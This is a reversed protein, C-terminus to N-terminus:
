QGDIGVERLRTGLRQYLGEVWPPMGTGSRPRASPALVVEVNGIGVRAALVFLEEIAPDGIALCGVSCDKGHIMIDGGLRTRGEEAAHRRDEANPYDVRLALHYLSNPNLSEIGYFGEPVQGDGERLKPGLGGSAGLVSYRAVEKWGGAALAYVRLEREAKLAVLAIRAPPYAVGAAGFREKLRLEAAPGYERVRDEISSRGLVLNRLGAAVRAPGVLVTAGGMAAAVLVWYRAKVVGHIPQRTGARGTM